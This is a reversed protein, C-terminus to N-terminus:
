FKLLFLLLLLLLLLFSHSTYLYHKQALMKLVKNFVLYCQVFSTQEYSMFSGQWFTRLFGFWRWVNRDKLSMKSSSLKIMVQVTQPKENEELM